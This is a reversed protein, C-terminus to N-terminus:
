KGFTSSFRSLVIFQIRIQFLAEVSIVVELLQHRVVWVPDAEAMSLDAVWPQVAGTADEPVLEIELLLMQVLELVMIIHQVPEVVLPAM